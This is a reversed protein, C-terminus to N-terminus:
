PQTQRFGEGLASPPCMLISTKLKPGNLSSAPVREGVKWHEAKPADNRWRRPKEMEHYYDDRLVKYEEILAYWRRLSMGRPPPSFPGGIEMGAGIVKRIKLLQRRMRDAAPEYQSAYALNLCHRCAIRKHVYLVGCRRRCSPCNFWKRTGGFHCDTETLAVGQVTDGWGGKVTIIVYDGHGEVWAPFYQGPRPEAIHVIGSGNVLGADVVQKICLQMTDDAFRSHKRLPM